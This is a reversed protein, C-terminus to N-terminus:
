FRGEHPDDNQKKSGTAHTGHVPKVISIAPLPATALRHREEASMTRRLCNDEFTYQQKIFQNWKSTKWM